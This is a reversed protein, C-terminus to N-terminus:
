DINQAQGLLAQSLVDPNRVILRRRDKQIVQQQTLEQL